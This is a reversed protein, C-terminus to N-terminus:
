GPWLGSGPLSPAERGNIRAEADRERTSRTDVEGGNAEPSARSRKGSASM